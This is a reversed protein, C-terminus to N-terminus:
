IGAHALQMAVGVSNPLVYINTGNATQTVPKCVQIAVNLTAIM